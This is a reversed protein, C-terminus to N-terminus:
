FFSFLFPFFHFALLLSITISISFSLHNSFAFFCFCSVFFFFLFLFTTILSCFFFFFSASFFNVEFIVILLPLTQFKVLTPHPQSPVMEQPHVALYGNLYEPSLRFRATVWSAPTLVLLNEVQWCRWQKKRDRESHTLQCAVSSVFWSTMTM